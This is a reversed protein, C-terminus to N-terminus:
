RRTRRKLEARITTQVKPDDLLDTLEKRADDPTYVTSTSTIDVEQRQLGCCRDLFLRAAQHNGEKAQELLSKAVQWVAEDMDVGEDKAHKEIAKRFDIGKPRGPGPACGPVFLGKADRDSKKPKSGVRKKAKGNRGNKGNQKTM